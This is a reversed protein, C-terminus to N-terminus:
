ILLITAVLIVFLVIKPTPLWFWIDMVFEWHVWPLHGTEKEFDQRSHSLNSVGFTLLTVCVLTLAAVDFVRPIIKRINNNLKHIFICNVM